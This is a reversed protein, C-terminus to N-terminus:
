LLNFVNILLNNVRDKDVKLANEEDIAEQLSKAREENSKKRADSQSKEFKLEEVQISNGINKIKENIENANKVEEAM